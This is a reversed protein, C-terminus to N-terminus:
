NFFPKEGLKIKGFTGRFRTLISKTKMIMDGYEIQVTGELDGMTYVTESIDRNLYISPTKKYTIFKSNYHKLILQTDDQDM